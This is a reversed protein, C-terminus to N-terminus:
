RGDDYDSSTCGSLGEEQASIMFGSEGITYAAVRYIYISNYLKVWGNKVDELDDITVEGSFEDADVDYNKWLVGNTDVIFTKGGGVGEPLFKPDITKVGNGVLSATATFPSHDGGVCILLMVQGPGEPNPAVAFGVGHGDATQYTTGRSDNELWGDKEGTFPNTNETLTVDYTQGDLTFAVKDGAKVPSALVGSEWVQITGIIIDARESTATTEPLLETVGEYALKEEWKPNGDADVVLQKNPGYGESPVVDYDHTDKNYIRKM